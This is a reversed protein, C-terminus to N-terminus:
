RETNPRYSLSASPLCACIFRVSQCPGVALKVRAHCRAPAIVHDHSQVLHGHNQVLVPVHAPDDATCVAPKSIAASGLAARLFAVHTAEDAALEVALAQPVACLGWSSAIGLGKACIVAM